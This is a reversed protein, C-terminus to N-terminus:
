LTIVANDSMDKGINILEADGRISLRRNKEFMKVSTKSTLTQKQQAPVVPVSITDSRKGERRLGKLGSWFQLVLCVSMVMFKLVLCVSMVVFKVVLCVSMVVFKVVLCVSMVVFKVVLCVSM